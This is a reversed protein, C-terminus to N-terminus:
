HGAFNLGQTTASERKRTVMFRSYFEHIIFSDLPILCTENHERIIEENRLCGTKRGRDNPTRKDRIAEIDKTGEVTVTEYCRGLEGSLLRNM